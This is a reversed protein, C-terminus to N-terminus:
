LCLAVPGGDPTANRSAAVTLMEAPVCVLAPRM